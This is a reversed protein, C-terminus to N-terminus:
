NVRETIPKSRMLSHNADDDRHGLLERTKRLTVILQNLQQAHLEWTKRVRLILESMEQNASGTSNIFEELETSTRM